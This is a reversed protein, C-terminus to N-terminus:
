QSTASALEFASAWNNALTTREATQAAKITPTTEPDLTTFLKKVDTRLSVKALVGAGVKIPATFTKTITRLCDNTGTEWAVALPANGGEVYSGRVKSFIYSTFWMWGNDSTMNKLVHLEGGGLSLNDNHAADVGVAFEVGTYSGSPVGGIVISERRNAPLAHTGTAGNSLNQEKVVEVLYYANPVTFGAGGSATLKVNTLWYRVESFAFTTGTTLEYPTDLQFDASGGFAFKTELTVSGPLANWAVRLDDLAENAAALQAAAGAYDGAALEDEAAKLATKAKDLEVQLAQEAGEASAVQGELQRVKGKLAGIQADLEARRASSLRSAQTDDAAADSSCGSLVTVAAVLPVACLSRAHRM